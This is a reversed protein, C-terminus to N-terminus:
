PQVTTSPAPEGAPLRQAAYARPGYLTLGTVVLGAALAVLVALAMRQIWRDLASESM